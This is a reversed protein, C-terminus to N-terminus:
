PTVETTNYHRFLVICMKTLAHIALLFSGAGYGPDQCFIAECSIGM